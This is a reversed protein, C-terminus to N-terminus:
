ISVLAEKKGYLNKNGKKKRSVLFSKRTYDGRRVYMLSLPM